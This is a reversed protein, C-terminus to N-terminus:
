RSDVDRATQPPFGQGTGSHPLEDRERLEDGEGIRDDLADEVTVDEERLEDDTPEREGPDM